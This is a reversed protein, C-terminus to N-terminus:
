SQPSIYTVYVYGRWLISYLIMNILIHLSQTACLLLELDFQEELLFFPPFSPTFNVYQFLLDSILM